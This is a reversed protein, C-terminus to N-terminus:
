WQQEGGSNGGHQGQYNRMRSQYQFKRRLLGGPDDPVRRLWQEMAQRQEESLAQTSATEGPAAPTQQDQEQQQDQQQSSESRNPHNPQEARGQQDEPTPARQEGGQNQPQRNEHESSDTHRSDQQEAADTSNGGNEDAKRQEPNGNRADNERAHELARKVLERNFAADEHDPQQSLVQEYSDLAEQLKGSRALSNALNYRSDSTEGQRFASIAQDYAGARYAASGRWRPDEFTNMAAEMDGKEFAKQGQQDPRQWLESWEIAHSNDSSFLAPVILWVVILNRRFALLALPLVLILLWYGRDLWTDFNRALQRTKQKAMSDWQDRLYDLDADDESLRVQRGGNDNVLALFEASEARAVIINGAKDKVFGGGSAPIPAGDEDGIVLASLRFGGAGQLLETIAQRDGRSIGDSVLLLDGGLHGAQLALELGMAVAGAPESGPTPMIDPHLSPLLSIITGTDDTLPSVLHADGAYAILASAGERRRNLLDTLKLRARTLRNPKLDEALMSASLDLLIVLAADQKHVPQPLRSWSPGALALITLAWFILAWIFPKRRAQQDQQDLLFPLLEAGIVDRWRSTIARNRWLWWSLLLSPILALLWWPRLLHFNALLGPDVAESM